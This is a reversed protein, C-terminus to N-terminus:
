PRGYRMEWERCSAAGLLANALASLHAAKRRDMFAGANPVRDSYHGECSRCVPALHRDRGNRFPYDVVPRECIACDFLPAFPDPM